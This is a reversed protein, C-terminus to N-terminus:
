ILNQTTLLMCVKKFLKKIAWEDDDDEEYKKNSGHKIHDLIPNLNLFLCNNWKEKTTSFDLIHLSLCWCHYQIHLRNEVFRFSLSKKKIFSFHKLVIIVLWWRVSCMRRINRKTFQFYISACQGYIHLLSNPITRFCERM